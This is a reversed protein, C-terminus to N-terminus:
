HAHIAFRIVRGALEVTGTDSGATVGPLTGAPAPFKIMGPDCGQACEPLFVSVPDMSDLITDSFDICYLWGDRTQTAHINGHIGGTASATGAQTSRAFCVARSCM